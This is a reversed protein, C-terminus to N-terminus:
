KLLIQEKLLHVKQDVRNQLTTKKSIWNKHIKNSSKDESLRLQDM